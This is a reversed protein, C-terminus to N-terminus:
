AMSSAGGGKSKEHALVMEVAWQSRPSLFINKEKPPKPQQPQSKIVEVAWRSRSGLNINIPNGTVPDHSPSWEAPNWGRVVRTAHLFGSSVYALAANNFCVVCCGLLVLVFIIIAAVGGGSITEAPPLSVAITSPTARSHGETETPTHSPTPSHTPTVSQSAGASPTGTPTPSASETMTTSPTLTPSPSVAASPSPSPALLISKLGTLDAVTYCPSTSGGPTGKVLASLYSLDRAAGANAASGEVILVENKQFGPGASDVQAFLAKAPKFALVPTSTLAYDFLGPPTARKTINMTTGDDANSLTAFKVGPLGTKIDVLATLTDAYFNVTGWSIALAEFKESGPPYQINLSAKTLADALGSRVVFMFPTYSGVEAPTFAANQKSAYFSLWNGVFTSAATPVALEPIGAAQVAAEASAQTDMLVDFIDFTILKLSSFDLPPCQAYAGFLLSLYFAARM